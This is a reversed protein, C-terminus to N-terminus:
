RTNIAETTEDDTPVRTTTAREIIRTKLAGSAYDGSAERFQQFQEYLRRKNTGTKIVLGAARLIAKAATSASNRSHKMGIADLKLGQEITSRRYLAIVKENDLTRAADQEIFVDM